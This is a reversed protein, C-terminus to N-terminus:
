IEKRAENAEKTEKYDEIIKQFAQKAEVKKGMQTLSKGIFLLCSPALSAKPYKTFIKSFYVMAKEHNGSFFEVRGLGHIVKNKEGPTLDNHDILGELQKRAENFNNKKILKLGVVLEEKANKKQDVKSPSSEKVSALSSTVKEIFSRQEKIENQVQLMQTSSMEQQTKLLNLSESMQKLEEMNALSQKHEIEEIRGNMTNLQTQIDKMQEVLNALLGQADGMQNSISEMRKEREVQEATKICSISLGLLIIFPIIKTM